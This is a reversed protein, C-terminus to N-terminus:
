VIFVDQQSIAEPSRDNLIVNPNTSAAPNKRRYSDAFSGQDSCAGYDCPVNRLVYNCKPRGCPDYANLSRILQFLVPVGDLVPFLYSSELRSSTSSHFTLIQM